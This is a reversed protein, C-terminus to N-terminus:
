KCVTTSAFAEARENNDENSEVMLNAPDVRARVAFAVGTPSLNLIMPVLFVKIEQSDLKPPPGAAISMVGPFTNLDWVGVWYRGLTPMTPPIVAPGQGVNKVQVMITTQGVFPRICKVSFPLPTLNLITLDPPPQDRLVRGSPFIPGGPPIQQRGRQQALLASPPLALAAVV